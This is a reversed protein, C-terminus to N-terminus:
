VFDSFFLFFFSFRCLFSMRTSPPSASADVATFESEDINVGVDVCDLKEVTNSREGLDTEVASDRYLVPPPVISNLADGKSSRVSEYIGGVLSPVHGVSIFEPAVVPKCGMEVYSPEAFRVHKVGGSFYSM